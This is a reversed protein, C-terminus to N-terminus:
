KLPSQTKTTDTMVHGIRKSTVIIKGPFDVEFTSPCNESACSGNLVFSLVFRAECERQESTCGTFQWRSLTAKAPLALPEPGSIIRVRTVTGETSITAILEVDGQLVAMRAFWPYDIGIVRKLALQPQPPECMAARELLLLMMLARTVATTSIKMANSM